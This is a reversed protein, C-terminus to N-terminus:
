NASPAFTVSVTCYHETNIPQSISCGQNEVLKATCNGMVWYKTVQVQCQTNDMRKYTLNVTVDPSCYYGQYPNTAAEANATDTFGPAITVPTKPNFFANCIKRPYGTQIASITENVLAIPAAGQNTTKVCVQVKGPSPPTCSAAYSAAFPLIAFLYLFARLLKLQLM